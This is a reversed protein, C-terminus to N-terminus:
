SVRELNNTFVDAFYLEYHGTGTCSSSSDQFQKKSGSHLVGRNCILTPDHNLPAFIDLWTAGEFPHRFVGVRRPERAAELFCDDACVDENADRSPVQKVFVVNGLHSGTCNDKCQGVRVWFDFRAQGGLM